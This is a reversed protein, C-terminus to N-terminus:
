WLMVKGFISAGKDRKKMDASAEDDESRANEKKKKEMKSLKIRIFVQRLSM